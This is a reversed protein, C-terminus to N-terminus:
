QDFGLRSRGLKELFDSSDGFPIAGYDQLASKVGENPKLELELKPCFIPRKQQNAIKTQVVAGGNDGSVMVAVADAIGSTIRNRRVFSIPSGQFSPLYECIILGDRNKIEEFLPINELPYPRDLGTGFVCITKGGSFELAGKHAATDIGSAGGSCIVIDKESLERCFKKTFELAKNDAQRTGVVAIVKRKVLDYNGYYFLTTPPDPIFKLKRPYEDENLIVIKMGGRMANELTAKLNDDPSNIVKQFEALGNEDFIRTEILENLSASYVRDVDGFYHMLKLIRSPGIGKVDCLRIWKSLKEIDKM